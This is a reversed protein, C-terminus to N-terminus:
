GKAPVDMRWFLHLSSGPWLRVLAPGLARFLRQLRFQVAEPMRPHDIWPCIGLGAELGYGFCHIGTFGANRYLTRVRRATLPQELEQPQWRGFPAWTHKEYWGLAECAFKVIGAVNGYNPASLFYVGGPKLVRLFESAAKEPEPFHESADICLLVDFASDPFPLAAADGQVLPFGGRSVVFDLGTYHGGQAEVCAQSFGRGCGVDLVRKGHCDINLRALVSEFLPLNIGEVGGFPSSVMRPHRTYFEQIARNETM